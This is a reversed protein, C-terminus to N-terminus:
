VALNVLKGNCGFALAWAANDHQSARGIATGRRVRDRERAHHKAYCGRPM